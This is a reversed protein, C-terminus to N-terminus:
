WMYGTDDEKKGSTAVKEARPLMQRKKFKDKWEKLLQNKVNDPFDLNEKFIHKITIIKHYFQIATAM